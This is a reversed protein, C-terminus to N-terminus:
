RVQAEPSSLVLAAMGPALRRVAAQDIASGPALGTASVLAQRLVGRPARCLVRRAVRDALASVTTPLPTGVFSDVDFAQFGAANSTVLQQAANWRSLM